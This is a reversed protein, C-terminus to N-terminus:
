EIVVGAAIGDGAQLPGTSRRGLNSQREGVEPDIDTGVRDGAQEM